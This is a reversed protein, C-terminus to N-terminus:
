EAILEVARKNMPKRLFARWQDTITFEEIQGPNGNIQTGSALFVGENQMASLWVADSHEGVKIMSDSENAALVARAKAKSFGKVARRSHRPPNPSSAGRGYGFQFGLFGAIAGVAVCAVM